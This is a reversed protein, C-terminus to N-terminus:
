KSVHPIKKLFSRWQLGYIIGVTIEVSTFRRWVSFIHFLLVQHIQCFKAMRLTGFIVNYKGEGKKGDKKTPMPIEHLNPDFPKNPSCLFNCQIKGEEKEGDKKRTMLSEHLNPNFPQIKGKVDRRVIAQHKSGKRILKVSNIRKRYNFQLQKKKELGVLTGENRAMNANELHLYIKISWTFAIKTIVHMCLTNNQNSAFM